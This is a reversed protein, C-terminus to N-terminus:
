LFLVVTIVYLMDGHLNGDRSEGQIITKRDVFSIYRYLFPEYCHFSSLIKKKFVETKLAFSERLAHNEILFDYELNRDPFDSSYLRLQTIVRCHAEACGKFLVQQPIHNCFLDKIHTM